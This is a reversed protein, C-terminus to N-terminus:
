SILFIRRGMNRDRDIGQDHAILITLIALIIFIIGLPPAFPSSPYQYISTPTVVALLKMNM